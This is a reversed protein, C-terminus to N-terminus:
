QWTVENPVEREFTVADPFQSVVMDVFEGRLKDDPVSAVMEAGLSMIVGLLQEGCLRGDRVAANLQSRITRKLLAIEELHDVQDM